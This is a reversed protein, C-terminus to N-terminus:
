RPDVTAGAEPGACMVVVPSRSPSASRWSADPVTPRSACCAPTEWRPATSSGPRSSWATGPESRWTAAMPTSSSRGRSAACCRTLVTRTGRRYSYGAGNGWAHPTLGDARLAAEVDRESPAPGPARVVEVRLANGAGGREGAVAVRDRVHAAGRRPGAGGRRHVPRAGRGGRRRHPDPGTRPRLRYALSRASEGAGVGRYVDFLALSELLAGGAHRLTAQVAAAPVADDVVFALDIDSSPFKSVTALLSRRRHAQELFVELDIELWGVRRREADLGFEELVDPDVEGVVAVM